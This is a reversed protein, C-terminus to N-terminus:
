EEGRYFATLHGNEDLIGSRQLSSKVYDLEEKTLKIGQRKKRLLSKKYDIEEKLQRQYEFDNDFNYYRSYVRLMCGGERHVTQADNDAFVSTYM